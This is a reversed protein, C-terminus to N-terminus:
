PTSGGKGADEVLGLVGGAQTIAMVVKFYEEYTVAADTDLIVIRNKEPKTPFAEKALATQLEALTMKEAKEGYHIEAPSLSITLQKQEKQEPDTTGSPIELKEGAPKIFTTTLIFFIILLFAIDAFAGVNIEADDKKRKKLLM